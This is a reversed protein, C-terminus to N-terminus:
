VVEEVAELIEQINEESEWKSKMPWMKKMWQEYVEEVGDTIRGIARPPLDDNITLFAPLKERQDLKGLALRLSTTSRVSLFEAPSDGITYAYRQILNVCRSRISSSSSSPPPLAFSATGFIPSLGVAEIAGEEEEIPSAATPSPPPPSAPPLFAESGASAGGLLAIIVCDGCRPHFFSVNKFVDEVKRDRGDLGWDEGFCDIVDISCVSGNKDPKSPVDKDFSPWRTPLAYTADPAFFAFGDHSTFAIDTAQPLPLGAFSYNKLLSSMTSRQPAPIYIISSDSTPHSSFSALYDMLQIQEQRSFIGDQDIDSRGFFFSWLRNITVSNCLGRSPPFPSSISTCLKM